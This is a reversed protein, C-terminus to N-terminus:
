FFGSINTDHCVDISTFCGSGFTNQVVGTAYVFDTFYMIACSCHVPHNLLLFTTDSDSGSSCCSFPLTVTQVDDVGRTVYVECYFNFTGQAYQVAGNPNETCYTTYLWLRFSYPTLSVCVAYWSQSIYIFHVSGTCVEQAYNFLDSFTQAVICDCHLQWDTSFVVECTNDVQNSHFCM